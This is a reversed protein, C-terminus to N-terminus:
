PREAGEIGLRKDFEEKVTRGEFCDKALDNVVSIDLKLALAVERDPYFDVDKLQKKM